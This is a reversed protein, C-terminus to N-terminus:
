KGCEKINLESQMNQCNVWTLAKSDDRSKNYALIMDITDTDSFFPGFSMNPRFQTILMAPLLSSHLDHIYLNRHSVAM